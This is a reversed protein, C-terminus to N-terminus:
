RRATSGRRGLGRPAAHPPVHPPAACRHLPASRASPPPPPRAAEHANHGLTVLEAVRAQRMRSQDAELEKEVMADRLAKLDASNPDLTLAERCARAAAAFDGAVRMAEAQERLEALRAVKDDVARRTRTTFRTANAKQQLRPLLWNSRRHEPSTRGADGGGGGKLTEGVHFYRLTVATAPQLAIRRGIDGVLRLSTTGLEYPLAGLGHAGAGCHCLWGWKLRQAAGVM